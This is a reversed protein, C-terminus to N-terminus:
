TPSARSCAARSSTPAGAPREEPVDRGVHVRLDRRHRPARHARAHVVDAHRRQRHPLPRCGPTRRSRGSRTGTRPRRPVATRVPAARRHLPHRPPRRRRVREVERSRRRRHGLVAHGHDHHLRRHDASAWDRLFDNYAACACRAQARRRRAQPLAPQRLRRREPLAGAGLDRGRGHVRAPRRRRLVGPPVDEYTPPGAPFPEALGRARHRGVQTSRRRRRAGVVDSGDAHAGGAARRDLYRAPVRTRGCTPRSPSTAHRRRHHAADHRWRVVKPASRCGPGGWRHFESVERHSGPRSSRTTRSARRSAEAGAGSGELSPRAHAGICVHVGHGFGLHRDMARRAGATFKTSEELPAVFNYHTLFFGDVASGFVVVKVHEDSELATIVENLQPITEPGFINLPPNDFTVRWYLPSRRDLRVQSAATGGTM